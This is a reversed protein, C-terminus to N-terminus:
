QFYTKNISFGTSLNQQNNKTWLVLIWVLYLVSISGKLYLSNLNSTIFTEITSIFNINEDNVFGLQDLLDSYSLNTIPEIILVETPTDILNLNSAINLLSSIQSTSYTFIWFLMLAVPFIWKTLNSLWRSDNKVLNGPLNELVKATFIDTDPFTPAQIEHLTNSLDKIQNSKLSCSSCSALHSKVLQFEKDSLEGDFYPSLYKDFHNSM